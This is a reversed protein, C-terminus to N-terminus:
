PSLTATPALRPLALDVVIAAHDSVPRGDADRPHVVAAGVPVLGRGAFWDLRAPVIGNWPRLKRRLLWTLFSGVQSRAKEIAYPDNLDFDMSGRARDNYGDVAYGRRALLEFVAREYHRDPHMYHTITGAFGNVVLKHLINWALALPSALDYTSTNLDGGVLVGAHGLSEASDLIAALQQARQAPSAVSDLHCAAVTLPAGGTLLEAVLARKRGLRKESSSFKDRLAPVDVNVVRGLPVRALIATGALALTNPAGDPNELYDDELVLYSVGFAYSMGLSEALERAVDHNGSRGMGNDVEVLCLVDARSLEPDHCLARRLAALRRGRQINWAVVRLRGGDPQRPSALDARAVGDLVRELEPRIERYLASAELARRRRIARLAPYHRSLDHRIREERAYV